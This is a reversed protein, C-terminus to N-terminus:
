YNMVYFFNDNWAAPHGFTTGVIKRAHAITAHYARSPVNLKPGKHNIAAWVNSKIM